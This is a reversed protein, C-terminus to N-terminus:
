RCGGLAFDGTVLLEAPQDARVAPRSLGRVRESLGASSECNNEHACPSTFDGCGESIVGIEDRNLKQVRRYREDWGIEACYLFAEIGKSNPVIEVARVCRKTHQCWTLGLESQTPRFRYAVRFSTFELGLDRDSSMM